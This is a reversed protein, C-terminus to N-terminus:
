ASARSQQRITSVNPIYKYVTSYVVAKSTVKSVSTNNFQQPCSCGSQDLGSDSWESSYWSQYTPIARVRVADDDDAYIPVKCGRGNEVYYFSDDVYAPSCGESTTVSAPICSLNTFFRTTPATLTQNDLNSEELFHPISFPMFAADNTVFGPLSANLWLGAYAANLVNGNLKNEQQLPTTFQANTTVNVSVNVPVISINFIASAVPTLAWFILVM